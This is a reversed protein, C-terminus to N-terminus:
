LHLELINQLLAETAPGWLIITWHSDSSGQRPTVRSAPWGSTGIFETFLIQCNVPKTKVTACADRPQRM